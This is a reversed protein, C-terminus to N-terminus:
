SATWGAGRPPRLWVTVDSAKRLPARRPVSAAITAAPECGDGRDGDGYEGGAGRGGRASASTYRQPGFTQLAAGSPVPLCRSVRSPLGSPGSYAHTDALASPDRMATTLAM